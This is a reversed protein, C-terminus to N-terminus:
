NWTISHRGKCLCLFLILFCIVSCYYPLISGYPLFARLVSDFSSSKKTPRLPHGPYIQLGKVPLVEFSLLLIEFQTHCDGFLSWSRTPDSPHFKHKMQNDHQHTFHLKLTQCQNLIVWLQASIIRKQYSFFNFQWRLHNLFPPSTERLLDSIAPSLVAWLCETSLPRGRPCPIYIGSNSILFM